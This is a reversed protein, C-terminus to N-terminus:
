SHSFLKQWWYHKSEPQTDECGPREQELTQEYPIVPVDLDFDAEHGFRHLAANWDIIPECDWDHRDGDHQVAHMPCAHIGQKVAAVEQRTEPQKSIYYHGYRDDRRINDPAYERCLDCDTCQDDIYFKGPANLPYRHTFNM